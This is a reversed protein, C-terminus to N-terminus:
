RGDKSAAKSQSAQAQRLAEVHSIALLGALTECGDRSAIDKLESLMDAMYILREARASTDFREEAGALRAGADMGNEWWLYV